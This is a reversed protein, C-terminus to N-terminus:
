RQGPPSTLPPSRAMGNTHTWCIKVDHRAAALVQGEVLGILFSAPSEDSPQRDSRTRGRVTILLQGSVAGEARTTDAAVRLPCGPGSIRASSSHTPLRRPSRAAATESWATSRPSADHIVASPQPGSGPGAPQANARNSDAPQSPLDGVRYAFGSACRGDETRLVSRDAPTIVWRQARQLPRSAKNSSRSQSSSGVRNSSVSVRIFAIRLFQLQCLPV